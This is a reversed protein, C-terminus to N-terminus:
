SKRRRARPPELLEQWSKVDHLKLNLKELEALDDIAEITKTIREDPPGFRKGGHLLLLKRSEQILGQTIGQSIGQRIGEAIGQAKGERVIAQYTVSEKMATIGQSLHSVLAEDFRLGMLVLTATWLEKSFPPASTANLRERMQELIAPLEQERVRSIPALPLTGWGCALLTEPSMEWVRLVEYHFTVYPEEGPFRNQFVGTICELNAQPALLVVCSRVPLGHRHGLVTNYLHTREPVSADPGSQFNLDFLWDPEGRVRMVKDSAATLTSVDADVMEVEPAAYGVLRPWDAPSYELLAKLTADYQKPM